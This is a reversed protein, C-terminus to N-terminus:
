FCGLVFKLDSKQFYHKESNESIISEFNESFLAKRIPTVKGGAVLVL